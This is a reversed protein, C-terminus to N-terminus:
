AGGGGADPPPSAPAGGFGAWQAWSRRRPAYYQEADKRDIGADVAAQVADDVESDTAYPGIKDSGIQKLVRQGAASSAPLEGGNRKREVDAHAEVPLQNEMTAQQTQQMGVMGPNSAFAGMISKGALAAAQDLQRADVSASLAGGPLMYRMADDRQDAPLSLWANTLAKSGGIGGTPRGGALMAQAKWTANRAVFDQDRFRSLAEARQVPTMEALASRDLGTARAIRSVQQRDMYGAQQQEAADNQRYIYNTGTPGEVKQLTFGPQRPDTEQLDRRPGLRGPAGPIGRGEGGPLMESPGTGVSYSVSGDPAYVPFFGRAAMARDRDSPLYAADAGSQMANDKTVPTRTNYAQADKETTMAEPRQMPTGDVTRPGPERMPNQGRERLQGPTLTPEPPPAAPPRQAERARRPADMDDLVSQKQDLVNQEAMAQATEPDIGQQILRNRVLDVATSDGSGPNYNVQPQTPRRARTRPDPTIPASSAELPDLEDPTSGRKPLSPRTASAM